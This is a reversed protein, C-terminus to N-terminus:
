AGVLRTLAARFPALKGLAKCSRRRERLLVIKLAASAVFCPLKAARSAGCSHIQVHTVVHWVAWGYLRGDSIQETFITPSGRMAWFDGM